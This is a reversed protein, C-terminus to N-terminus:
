PRTVVSLTRQFTEEDQAAVASAIQITALVGKGDMDPLDEVDEENDAQIKKRAVLLLDRALAGALLLDRAYVRAAETM